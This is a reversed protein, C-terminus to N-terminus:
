INLILDNMYIRIKWEQSEIGYSRRIKREDKAKWAVWKKEKWGWGRKREGESKMYVWIQYKTYAVMQLKHSYDLIIWMIQM